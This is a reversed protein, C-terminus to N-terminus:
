TVGRRFLNAKTPLRNRFIRWASVSFKLPVDNRWLLDAYVLPANPTLPTGCTLTRYARRVTYGVGPDPLWTWVDDVNVHLVVSLLLLRCEGLLEEEWV